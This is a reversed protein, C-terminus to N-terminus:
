IIWGARWLEHGRIEMKINRGYLADAIATKRDQGCPHGGGMQGDPFLVEAARIVDGVQKGACYHLFVAAFCDAFSELPPGAELPQFKPYLAKHFICDPSVNAVAAYVTRRLRSDVIHGLEHSFALNAVPPEYNFDEYKLQVEGTLANAISDGRSVPGWRSILQNNSLAELCTILHSWPVDDLCRADKLKQLANASNALTVLSDIAAKNRKLLAGEESWTTVYDDHEEDQYPVRLVDQVYEKVVAEGADEGRNRLLEPKNAWVYWYANKWEQPTPM